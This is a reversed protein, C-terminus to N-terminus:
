IALTVSRWSRTCRHSEPVRSCANLSLLPVRRKRVLDLRDRVRVVSSTEEMCHRQNVAQVPFACKDSKPQTCSSGRETSQSQQLCHWVPRCHPLLHTPYLANTRWHTRHKHGDTSTILHVGLITEIRTHRAYCSYGQTRFTALM